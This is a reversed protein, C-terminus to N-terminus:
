TRTSGFKGTRKRTGYEAREIPCRVVISDLWWARSHIARLADCISHPDDPDLATLIDKIQVVEDSIQRHSGAMKQRFSQFAVSSAHVLYSAIRTCIPYFRADNSDILHNRGTFGKCIFEVAYDCARQVSLGEQERAKAAHAWHVAETTARAARNLHGPILFEPANARLHPFHEGGYQFHDNGVVVLVAAVEEDIGDLIRAIFFNATRELQFWYTLPDTHKEQARFVVLRGESTGLLQQFDLSAGGFHETWSQYDFSEPPRTTPLKLANLVFCIEELARQAQAESLRIGRHTVVNRLHEAYRTSEALSSPDYITGALESCVRVLNYIQARSNEVVQEPSFPPKNKLTEDMVRQALETASIEATRALRPIESRCAAELAGWGILVAEEYKGLNFSDEADLQLMRWETVQERSSLRHKLREETKTTVGKCPLTIGGTRGQSVIETRKGELGISMQYLDVEELDHLWFCGMMDRLNRILQNLCELLTVVPQVPYNPTINALVRTYSAWGYRDIKFDFEGSEVVLRKDYTTQRVCEFSLEAKGLNGVIDFPGGELRLPFPLSANVKYSVQDSPENM